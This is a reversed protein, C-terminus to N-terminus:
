SAEEWELNNFRGPEPAPDGPLWTNVAVPEPWIGLANLSGLVGDLVNQARQANYREAAAVVDSVYGRSAWEARRLGDIAETTYQQPLMWANGRWGIPAGAGSAVVPVGGFTGITGPGVTVNVEFREQGDGGRVVKWNM